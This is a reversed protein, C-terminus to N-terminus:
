GEVESDVDVGDAKVKAIAKEIALYCVSADPYGVYPLAMIAVKRLTDATMERNRLACEAHISMMGDDGAKLLTGMVVMRKERMSLQDEFAGWFDNFMKMSLGAYNDPTITAPMPVVGRYCDEFVRKGREIMEDETM